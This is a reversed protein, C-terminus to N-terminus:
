NRRTVESRSTLPSGGRSGSRERVWHSAARATPALKPQAALLLRQPIPLRVKLVYVWQPVPARSIVHDVLHAATQVMLRAGCSPCFGRLKRNNAVLKDYGFGFGLGADTGLRGVVEPARQM